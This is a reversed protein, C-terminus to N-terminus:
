AAADEPEARDDGLVENARKVLFAAEDRQRRVEAKCADIIALLEEVQRGRADFSGVGVANKGARPKSPERRILERLRERKQEPPPAVPEKAPAPSQARGKAPARRCGGCIGSENDSRLPTRKCNSCLKKDENPKAMTTEEAPRAPPTAPDVPGPLTTPEPKASPAAEHPPEALARRVDAPGKENAEAAERRARQQSLALLRADTTSGPAWAVKPRHGSYESTAPPPGLPADPADPAWIRKQAPPNPPPSRRVTTVSRKEQCVECSDANIVAAGCASCTWASSAPLQALKERGLACENACYAHRPELKKGKGDAVERAELQRRICARVPMGSPFLNRFRSCDFLESLDM